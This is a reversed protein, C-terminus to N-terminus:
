KLTLMDWKLERYLYVPVCLDIRKGICSMRGEDDLINSSNTAIGIIKMDDTILPGGSCGDEFENSDFSIEPHNEIIHFVTQCITKGDPAFFFGSIDASHCGPSFSIESPNLAPHKGEFENILNWASDTPGGDEDSPSHLTWPALVMVDLTSATYM